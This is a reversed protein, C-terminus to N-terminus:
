WRGVLSLAAGGPRPELVPVVMTYTVPPKKWPKLTLLAITAAGLGCALSTVGLAGSAGAAAEGADVYPRPSDGLHAGTYLLQAQRQSEGWAGGSGALLALSGGGLGIVAIWPPTLAAPPKGTKARAPGDAWAAPPAALSGVLLVSLILAARRAM